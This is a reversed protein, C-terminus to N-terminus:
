ATLSWGLHRRFPEHAEPGEHVDSEKCRARDHDSEGLDEGLWVEQDVNGEPRVEEQTLGRTGIWGTM